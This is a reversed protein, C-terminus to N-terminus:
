KSFYIREPFRGDFVHLMVDCLWAEHRLEIGRYKPIIYYAGNGIDHAKDQFVLEDAGNFPFESISLHVENEGEALMDLFTDAGSVMLLDDKSGTWDPLDVYWLGSLEKYFRFRRM